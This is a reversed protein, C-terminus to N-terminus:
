FGYRLGTYVNSNKEFQGFFTHNDKGLFVNGGVEASWHDDIKYQANPRLYADQDSPSYYIFLSLKLNQSFLLKTLRLTVVHRDKDAEPTGAPLTRRYEAHYVMHELYYQVTLTFDTAAEQEYGLLLRFESNRVFPDDGAHDDESDYYGFEATGIGQGMNGRISAGYVSLKPFTAKGLVPDMGGPSKWFGRYGYAALEYGRINKFIRCAIEDDDFWDDPKDVELVDDRGVIDGLMGNWYSIREGDIFRDADFRPTYVIDLNALSSFL